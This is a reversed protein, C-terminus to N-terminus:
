PRTPKPYFGMVNKATVVEVPVIIVEPLPRVSHTEYTRSPPYLAGRNMAQLIGFMLSTMFSSQQAVSGQVWGDRIFDLVDQDLDWGTVMVDGPRFRMERLASVASVASRSNSGFIFKIDRHKTLLAKVRETGVQAGYEDEVASVLRMNKHRAIFDTFGRRRAEQETNGAKAFLILAKGSLEKGATVSEAIRLSANELESSVYALRKSSPADLLYTIVPIGQDTARNIVPVLAASDAPTIIIGRIHKSSDALLATIENIQKQADSDSPGGFTTTIGSGEGIAKWTDRTDMWFPVSSAIVNMLYTTRTQVQPGSGSRNSRGIRYGVVGSLALLVVAIVITITTSRRQNM